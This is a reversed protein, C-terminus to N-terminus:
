SQVREQAGATAAGYAMAVGLLLRLPARQPASHASSHAAAPAPLGATSVSLDIKSLDGGFRDRIEWPLDNHGDILPTQALVREIRQTDAAQPTAASAVAVALTLWWLTVGAPSRACREQATRIDAM